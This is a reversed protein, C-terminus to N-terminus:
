DDKEGQAYQRALDDLANAVWEQRNRATHQYRMAATATSHGLRDQVEKITAGAQASLTGATHRLDHFRLKPYGIKNRVRYWPKYLTSPAMLEGNQGPFLLATKGPEVYNKLHHEVAPIVLSPMVVVRRGAKSKPDKTVRTTGNRVAGRQVRITRNKLNIDGRQLATVEGFRLGCWAAIQVMARYREPMLATVQAIEDPTLVIDERPAGKAPKRKPVPSKDILEREVAFGMMSGLLWYAQNKQTPRKPDLSARWRLVQEETVSRVPSQGFRPRILRQYQDKYLNRTTAEIHDRDEIWLEHLEDVTIGGAGAVGKKPASWLGDNVLQRQRKLWAEADVRSDFTEPAAHLHGDPGRFRAQHRGSPLKRITGSGATRRGKRAVSRAM